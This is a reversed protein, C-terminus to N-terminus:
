IGPSNWPSEETIEILNYVFLVQSPQFTFLDM